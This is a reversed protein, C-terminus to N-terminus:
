KIILNKPSSCSDVNKPRDHIDGTIFGVTIHPYFKIPDFDIPANQANEKAMELIKKRIEILGESAIVVYYVTNGKESLQGLCKVSFPIRQIEDKFRLHIEHASLHPSIKKYEPPTLVTIHAEGRDSLKIDLIDEISKKLANVPGFDVNYALVGQKKYIDTYPMAKYISRDLSYTHDSLALAYSCLCFLFTLTFFKNM